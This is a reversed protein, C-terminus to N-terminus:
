VRGSLAFFGLMGLFATKVWPYGSMLITFYGVFPVYAVVSGIIDKRELYDQGKAYLDTDDVANNDGKTLIKMEDRCTGM